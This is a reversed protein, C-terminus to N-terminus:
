CVLGIQVAKSNVNALSPISPKFRFNDNGTEIIHGELSAYHQTNNKSETTLVFQEPTSVPALPAENYLRSMCNIVHEKSPYGSKLAGVIAQELEVEPYQLVLALIDTMERDGGKRRPLVKQLASFSDPMELFPAENRLPGPKRQLVPVYHRCDYITHGTHHHRNEFSNQSNNRDVEIGEVYSPCFFVWCL